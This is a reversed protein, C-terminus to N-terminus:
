DARENSRRPDLVDRLSDGLLNFGVVTLVVAMGAFTSIWWTNFPDFRGQRLITGWSANPPQVGLGLFSLSSEVLIMTSILLTVFVIVPGMINPFIYNVIIKRRHMGLAIASKVYLMERIVIVEGRVVRAVEMWSLLGLITVTMWSSSSGFGIALLIVFLRPFGLLVDVFRMLLQDIWGGAYGAVTGVATGIGVAIITAILGIGLSVRAGWLIRSLLDRGYLDTGLLHSLSPPQSLLKLNQLTPDHPSLFPALLAGLSIISVILVGVRASRNHWLQKLIEGM